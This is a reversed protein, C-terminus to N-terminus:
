HGIMLKGSAVMGENETEITYMYFGPALNARLTGEGGYVSFSFVESGSNNYLKLTGNYFTPSSISYRMNNATVPNNLMKFGIRDFSEMTGTPESVNIIGKMGDNVHNGCVYHITGSASVTFTFDDTVTGWGSGSPTTGNAIWTSESVQITPHSNTAKITIQDGVNVELVAPSYTLGIINIVHDTASSSMTSLLSGLIIMFTFARM